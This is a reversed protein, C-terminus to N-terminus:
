NAAQTPVVLDRFGVLEIGKRAVLARVRSSTLAALENEWHYRWHRYPTEADPLGPHCGLEWTGRSPLNELLRLLEREGLRGAYLFGLFGDIASRQRRRARRGLANV